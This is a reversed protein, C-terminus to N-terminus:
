GSLERTIHRSSLPQLRKLARRYAIGMIWTSLSVGKFDAAKAGCEAITDNIVEEALDDRTSAGSIAGPPPSLSCLDRRRGKASSWAGAIAAATM